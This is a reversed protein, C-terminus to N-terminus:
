VETRDWRPVLVLETSTMQSLSSISEPVTCLGPLCLAGLEIGLMGHVLIALQPEASELDLSLLMLIAGSTVKSCQQSDREREKERLERERM